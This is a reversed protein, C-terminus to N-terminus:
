ASPRGQDPSAAQRVMPDATVRATAGARTWRWGKLLLVAGGTLHVAAVIGFALMYRSDASVLSRRLAISLLFASAVSALVWGILALCAGLSVVVARRAQSKLETTLELRLLGLRAEVFAVIDGGLRGVLEPLNDKTEIM